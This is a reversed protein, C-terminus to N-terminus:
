QTVTQTAHIAEGQHSWNSHDNANLSIRVIHEGPTLKKLHYWNSYIRAMKFGDVYIHAHGENAAADSNINEPTFRFNQTEIHINWGSMSDPMVKFSVSPIKTNEGFSLVELDGHVHQSHDHTQQTTDKNKHENSDSPQCAGLGFLVVIVLSSSVIVFLNKIM